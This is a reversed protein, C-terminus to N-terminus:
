DKSDDKDEELLDKLELLKEARKKVRAHSEFEKGSHFRGPDFLPGVAEDRDIFKITDVLAEKPILELFVYIQKITDAVLQPDYKKKESM